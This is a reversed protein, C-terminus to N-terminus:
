KQPIQVVDQKGPEVSKFHYDTESPMEMAAMDVEDYNEFAKLRVYLDANGSITNLVVYIPKDDSMFNLYEEPINV